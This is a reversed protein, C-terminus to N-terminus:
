GAHLFRITYGSCSYCVGALRNPFRAEEKRNSSTRAELAFSGVDGISNDLRSRGQTDILGKCICQTTHVAIMKM